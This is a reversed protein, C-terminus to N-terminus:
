DGPRVVRAEPARGLMWAALRVEAAARDRFGSARSRGAAAHKVTVGDIRTAAILEAEAESLVGVMVARELVGRGRGHPLDAPDFGDEDHLEDLSFTWAEEDRWPAMARRVATHARSALFGPVDRVEDALRAPDEAFARTLFAVILQSELDHEDAFPFEGALRNATTRLVPYALAILALTWENGDEAKAIMRSWVQRRSARSTQNSALVELLDTIVVLEVHAEDRDSVEVPVLVDAYDASMEAFARRALLLPGASGAAPLQPLAGAPRRVASITRATM